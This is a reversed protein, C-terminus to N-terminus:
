STKYWCTPCEDVDPFLFAMFLAAVAKLAHAKMEGAM